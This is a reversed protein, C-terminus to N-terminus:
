VSKSFQKEKKEGFYADFTTAVNRVFFRGDNTLKFGNVTWELFGDSEFPKLNEIEDAFYERFAVGTQDSLADFDLQMDCMLTMIVTRRIRDDENLSYTKIYPSQDADLAEYYDNLEKINQLYVDGVQSIGSMGFAYLDVNAWTSYGQFNRHLNNQDQAISLEDDPKAFHDMGIARYGNGTLKGTVQELMRFKDIPGPLHDGDLLKQAPKMWPVHAYSYVALRDPNLRIIEDMTSDISKPTQHPLGYILDFNVSEFEEERLWSIVQEVQETPQIRNIAKQVEPNVDQVGLSGRNFGTDALAKIHDHTLRRPDIEVGMEAKDAINFHHHLRTGLWRLESPQLFTPSGGGLHVQIVRNEPNMQPLILQIEKDLYELYTASSEQKRSIVKTCGCFWCLSYCFPLHLYLSIDRAERNRNSIARGPYSSDQLEEFKLATPYSTYRPAQINYKNILHDSIMFDAFVTSFYKLTNYGLKPIIRM